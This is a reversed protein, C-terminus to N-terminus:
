EKADPYRYLIDQGPTDPVARMNQINDFIFACSVRTKDCGPYVNIIDGASISFPMSLFLEIAGTDADWTKVEMSLGKNLGSEFTVLGGNYWANVARTDDIGAVTFQRLNTASTVM